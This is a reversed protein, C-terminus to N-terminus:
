KKKRRIKGIMFIVLAVVAVIAIFPLAATLFVAVDAFFDVFAKVGASVASRLRESFTVDATVLTSSSEEQLSVDVTSYAVQRDTSDLSSQLRDIEYQTDAMQAELALLDSLDAADTVLAQLRAMLAKQTDLRAQTDYYSETVDNASEERRIIRGLQGTGTLCSDLQDAPVRLSLYAYRLGDRGVSESVQSVWGGSSECLAKLDALSTDYQQTGITLSANRIVKAEPNQQELSGGVALKGSASRPAAATADMSYAVSNLMSGGTDGAEDYSIEEQAKTTRRLAPDDRTLLTGGVVFVAAAAVALARHIAKKPFPKRKEPQELMPAEEKIRQTWAQHFGEPMPPTSLGQLSDQLSDLARRRAACAPCQAEHQRLLAEEAPTVADELLKELLVAYETCTM